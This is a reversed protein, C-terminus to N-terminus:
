EDPDVETMVKTMVTVSDLETFGDPVDLLGAWSEGPLCGRLLYERVEQSAPGVADTVLLVLDIQEPVDPRGAWISTTWRGGSAQTPPAEEDCPATTQPWYTGDSGYLFCWLERGELNGSYTGGVWVLQAAPLDNSCHVPEEIMAELDDIEPGDVPPRLSTLECGGVVDIQMSDTAVVEGKTIVTVTVTVEGPNGPAVYTGAQSDKSPASVEGATTQWEYTLPANDPNDVEVAVGVGENVQVAAVSEVTDFSTITVEPRCGSLGLSVVVIACATVLRTGRFGLESM